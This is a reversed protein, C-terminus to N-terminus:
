ECRSTAILLYVTCSICSFCFGPLISVEGKPLQARVYRNLQPVSGAEAPRPPARQPAAAKADAVTVPATSAVITPTAAPLEEKTLAELGAKNDKKTAPSDSKRRLAAPIMNNKAARLSNNVSNM